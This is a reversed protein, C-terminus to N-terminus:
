YQLEFAQIFYRHDAFFKSLTKDLDNGLDKNMVVDNM